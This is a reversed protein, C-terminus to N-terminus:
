GNHEGNRFAKKERKCERSMHERNYHIIANKDLRVAFFYPIM